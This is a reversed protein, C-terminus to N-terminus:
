VQRRDYADLVLWDALLGGRFVDLIQRWLGVMRTEEIAEGFGVIRPVAEKIV